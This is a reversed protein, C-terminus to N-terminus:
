IRYTELIEYSVTNRAM